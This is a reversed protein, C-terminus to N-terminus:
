LIQSVFTLTMELNEIIWADKNPKNAIFSGLLYLAIVGIVCWKVLKIVGTNM